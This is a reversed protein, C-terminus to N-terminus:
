IIDLENDQWRGLIDERDAVRTEGNVLRCRTFGLERLEQLIRKSDELTSTYVIMPKPSQMVKDLLTELHENNTVETKVTL